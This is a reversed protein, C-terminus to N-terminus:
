TELFNIRCEKRGANKGVTKMGAGAPPEPERALLRDFEVAVCEMDDMLTFFFNPHGM